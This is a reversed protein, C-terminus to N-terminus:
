RKISCGSMRSEPVPVPKGAILADLANEAYPVRDKEGPLKSNDIAGRYRIVGSRDLVVVSPTHTAGLEEALTGDPDMLVPYPFQRNERNLRTEAASENKNSSVALIVVGQSRYKSDLAKIRDDYSSAPPCKFSWFELVLLKGAYDGSTHVRGDTDTLRFTPAQAGIQEGAPLAVAGFGLMFGLFAVAAPIAPTPRSMIRLCNQM